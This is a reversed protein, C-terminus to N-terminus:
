DEEEAEGLILWYYIQWRCLDIGHSSALLYGRKYQRPYEHIYRRGLCDLANSPIHLADFNM